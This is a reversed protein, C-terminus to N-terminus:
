KEVLFAGNLSHKSIFKIAENENSFGEIRVRYIPQDGKFDNKITTKYKSNLLSYRKAYIEAGEYRRFAGVQISTRRFPTPIKPPTSLPSSINRVNSLLTFQKVRSPSTDRRRLTARCNDGVCAQISKSRRVVPHTRVRTVRIRDSVQISKAKPRNTYFSTQEYTANELSNDEISYAYQPNSDMISSQTACGSLVIIASLSIRIVISTENKM